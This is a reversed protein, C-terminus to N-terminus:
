ADKRAPLAAEGTTNSDNVWERNIWHGLWQSFTQRITAMELWRWEEKVYPTRSEKPLRLKVPVLLFTRVIREEDDQYRHEISARM